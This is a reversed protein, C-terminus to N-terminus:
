REGDQAARRQKKREVKQLFEARSVELAKTFYEPDDLIQEIRDEQDEPQNDGTRDPGTPATM